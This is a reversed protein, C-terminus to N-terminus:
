EITIIPAIRVHPMQENIVDIQHIALGIAALTGPLLRELQIVIVIILMILFPWMFRARLSYFLAIILLALLLIDIFGLNIV